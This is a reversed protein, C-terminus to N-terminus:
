LGSFLNKFFNKASEWLNHFFNDAASTVANQVAGKIVEDAHDLFDAGYQNYLEQAKDIVYEGSFGLDELKGMTEVIRKADAESIDVDFKEEGESIAKKIGDESKLSGDQVKEKVFEFIEGATEDDMGSLANSLKEGVDGLLEDIDISSEESACVPLYPVNIIISVSLFLTMMWLFIKKM